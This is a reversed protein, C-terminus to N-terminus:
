FQPPPMILIDNTKAATPATRIIGAQWCSGTRMDDPPTGCNLTSGNQGLGKGDFQISPCTDPMATSLSSRMQITCRGVVSTSSSFPAIAFGGTVFHQM